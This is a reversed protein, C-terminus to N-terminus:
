WFTCSEHGPSLWFNSDTKNPEGALIFWLGTSFWNRGIYISLGWWSHKVIRWAKQNLFNLNKRKWQWVILRKSCDRFHFLLRVISLVLNPCFVSGGEKMVLVPKTWPYIPMLYTPVDTLGNFFLPIFVVFSNNLLLHLRLPWALYVCACYPLQFDSKKKCSQELDTVLKVWTNDTWSHKLHSKLWIPNLQLAFLVSKPWLKLHFGIIPVQNNYGNTSTCTELIEMFMVHADREEQM